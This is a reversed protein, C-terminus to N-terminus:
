RGQFEGGIIYNVNFGGVKLTVQIARRKAGGINPEMLRVKCM